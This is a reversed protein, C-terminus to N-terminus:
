SYCGCPHRSLCCRTGTSPLQIVILIGGFPPLPMSNVGRDMMTPPAANSEKGVIAPAGVGKSLQDALLPLTAAPQLAYNFQATSLAPGPKTCCCPVSGIVLSVYIWVTTVLGCAVPAAAPCGTLLSFKTRVPLKSGAIPIPWVM